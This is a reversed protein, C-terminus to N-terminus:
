GLVREHNTYTHGGESSLVGFRPWLNVRKPTQERDSVLVQVASGMLSHCWTPMGPCLAATSLHGEPELAAHAAAILRECTTCVVSFLKPESEHSSRFRRYKVWSTWESKADPARAPGHVERLFAGSFGPCTTFSSTNRDRGICSSRFSLCLAFSSSWLTTCNGENGRGLPLGKHDPVPPQGKWLVGAGDLLDLRLAEVEVGIGKPKTQAVPQRAGCLSVFARQSRLEAQRPQFFRHQQLWPVQLLPTNRLTLTQGRCVHM